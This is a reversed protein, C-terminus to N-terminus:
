GHLDHLDHLTCKQLLHLYLSQADTLMEELLLRSM